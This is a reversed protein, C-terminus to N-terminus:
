VMATMILGQTRELILKLTAHRVKIKEGVPGVLMLNSYNTINIAHTYKENERFSFNGAKPIPKVQSQCKASDEKVGNRGLVWM